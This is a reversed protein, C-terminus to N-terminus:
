AFACQAANSPPTETEKRTQCTQGCSNWASLFLSAQRDGQRHHFCLSLCVSPCFAFSFIQVEFLPRWPTRSWDAACRRRNSLQRLGRIDCREESLRRTQALTIKSSRPGRTKKEKMGDRRQEEEQKSGREAQAAVLM